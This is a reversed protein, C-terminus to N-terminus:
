PIAKLALMSDIPRICENEPFILMVNAAKTASDFARTIIKGMCEWFLCAVTHILVDGKLHVSLLGELYQIEVYFLM